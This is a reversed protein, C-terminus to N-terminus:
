LRLHLDPMTSQRDPHFLRSLLFSILYLDYDLPLHSVPATITSSPISVLEM